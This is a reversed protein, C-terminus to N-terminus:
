SWNYRGQRDKNKKFESKKNIFARPNLVNTTCVHPGLFVDECLSVGRYLSVNNQIKCGNPIDVAIYCGQGISVNDGITVGDVIHTYHWINSNVGIKVGEDITATEHIM